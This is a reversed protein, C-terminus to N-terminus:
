SATTRFQKKPYSQIYQRYFWDNLIYFESAKPVEL